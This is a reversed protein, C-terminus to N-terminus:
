PVTLSGNISASQLTGPVRPLVVMQGFLVHGSEFYAKSGSSTRASAYFWRLEENKRPTTGAFGALSELDPPQYSSSDGRWRESIMYFWASPLNLIMIYHLDLNSNAADLPFSPRAAATVTYTDPLPTMNLAPSVDGIETADVLALYGVSRNSSGNADASIAYLDGAASGPLSYFSGGAADGRGLQGEFATAGGAAYLGVKYSSNSWGAPITFSNVHHERVADSSSLTLDHDFVGSANIGHFVRGGILHDPDSTHTTDYALLVASAAEGEVMMLDDFDDKNSNPSDDEDYAGYVIFSAGGALASVDGQGSMYAIPASFGPCPLLPETTDNTTLQYVSGSNFSSDFLIGCVVAVGYREEGPPVYFVYEGEDNPWLNAWEGDGTQYAVAAPYAPKGLVDDFALTVRTGQNGGCAALLFILGFATLLIWKHKM